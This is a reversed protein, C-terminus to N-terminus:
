KVRSKCDNIRGCTDEAPVIYYGENLICDGMFVGNKLSNELYM